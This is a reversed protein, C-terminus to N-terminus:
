RLLLLHHTQMCLLEGSCNASTAFESHEKSALLLHRSATDDNLHPLAAEIDAARMQALRACAQRWSLQRKPRTLIPVFFLDAESPDYTRYVRSRHLRWHVMAAFAYGASLKFPGELVLGSGVGVSLVKGFVQEKSLSAVDLDALPASLNYVFVRPPPAAAAPTPETANLSSAASSEFERWFRAYDFPPSAKM